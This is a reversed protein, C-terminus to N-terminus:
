NSLAAKYVVACRAARVIRTNLGGYYSDMYRLKVWAVGEADVWKALVMGLALYEGVYNSVVIFRVADGVAAEPAAEDEHTWPRFVGRAVAVLNWM